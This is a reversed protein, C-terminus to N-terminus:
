REAKENQLFFSMKNKKSNKSIAVTKNASIKLVNSYSDPRVVCVLRWYIQNESIGNLKRGTFATGTPIKESILHTSVENQM